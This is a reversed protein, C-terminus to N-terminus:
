LSGIAAFFGRTEDGLGRCKELMEGAGRAAERAAERTASIAEDVGAINSTVAQAGSAAGVISGAIEATTRRQSGVTKEIASATNDLAIITALIENIAAASEGADKQVASIQRRIEETARATQNALTKVEGAVVAFGKGAEGARAAEITANLALLNTKAAVDTILQIVVEITQVAEGLSAAIAESRTAQAVAGAAMRTLEAASLSIEEISASFGDTSAAVAGINDAAQSSALVVATSRSAADHAQKSLSESLRQMSAASQELSALLARIRGDHEDASNVVATRRREIEDVLAQQYVTIALDLDMMIAASLAPLLVALQGPRLRYTRLALVQLQGLVFSYGGIYWKPDLGIRFHAAGIRQAAELYAEDFTGGFLREWHALQAQKLHDSRKGILAALKPQHLLHEYFKNLIGPLAPRAIPWFRRLASQSRQDLCLFTLRTKAEVCDLEAEPM